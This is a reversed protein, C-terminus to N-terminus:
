FRLGRRAKRRAKKSLDQSVMYAYIDREDDEQIKNQERSDRRLWKGWNLFEFFGALVWWILSLIAVIAIMITWQWPQPEVDVILNEYGVGEGEACEMCARKFPFDTLVVRELVGPTASQSVAVTADEEDSSPPTVVTHPDGIVVTPDLKVDHLFNEIGRLMVENGFPMGTTAMSWTVEDGKVGAVVIIGNKALARRHFADSQWYAKLANLYTFQNDVLSADILVLHLDGQLKAGLAGNFNMLSRQWVAQDAVNVGVFSVKDASSKNYGYLPDSNIDTTHDPLIGKEQYRSIDDSYTNLLEDKSALIYNDYDFLRTVPRPNGVDLHAKADAWEQPDARPLDGPIAQGQYGEGDKVYAGPFTYSGGLSDTITFRYERQAYPAYIHGVRPDMRVHTQTTCRGKGDCSTTTYTVPELYTYTEGTKYEYDCNSHGSSASGGSTGPYCDKVTFTASTEVGNRFEQYRLADQNVLVKGVTFVVPMVVACAILTGAVFERWSIHWAGKTYVLPIVYKLMFGSLVVVGATIALAIM